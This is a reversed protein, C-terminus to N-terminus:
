MLKQVQELFGQQNDLGVDSELQDNNFISPLFSALHVSIPLQVPYRQVPSHHLHHPQPSYM